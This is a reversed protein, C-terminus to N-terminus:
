IYVCLKFIFDHAHTFNNSSVSHFSKLVYIHDTESPHHLGIQHKHETEEQPYLLNGM